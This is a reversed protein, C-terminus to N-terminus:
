LPPVGCKLECGSWKQILEILQFSDAKKRANDVYTNLFEIVNEGTYTTKNKAMTGIKSKM